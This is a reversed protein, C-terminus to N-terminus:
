LYMQRASRMIREIQNEDTAKKIEELVKLPYYLDKAAQVAYKKYANISESDKKSM